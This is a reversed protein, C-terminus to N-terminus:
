STVLLKQLARGASGDGSVGGGGNGSDADAWRREEWFIGNLGRPQAEQDQMWRLTQRQFDLMPLALGARLARYINNAM